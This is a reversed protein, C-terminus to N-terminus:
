IIRESWIDPNLGDNNAVMDCLNGGPMAKNEKWRKYPRISIECEWLEEDEALLTIGSQQVAGMITLMGNNGKRVVLRGLSGTGRVTDVVVEEGDPMLQNINVNINPPLVPVGDIVPLKVVHIHHIPEKEKRPPKPPNPPPTGLKQPNKPLPNYGRAPPLTFFDKLVRKLKDIYDQTSSM